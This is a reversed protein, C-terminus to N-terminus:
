SSVKRWVRWLSRCSSFGFRGTAFSWRLGEIWEQYGRLWASQEQSTGSENREPRGDAVIGQILAASGLYTVANIVTVGGIGSTAYLLSGLAPGVLFAITDNLSNLANATVLREKEVLKPLLASEAPSFFLGVARQIIAITYIMGLQDPALLLPLLLASRVADAFIMTRKREWRDVFVGAVSGFLVVPMSSPVFTAATALTSDTLRYVHLPLAVVFALDDAISVLRALWLLVFDRQRLVALM